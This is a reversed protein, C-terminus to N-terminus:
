QLVRQFKFDVAVVLKFGDLRDLSSPAGVQGCFRESKHLFLSQSPHSPHSPNCLADRKVKLSSLDCTLFVRAKGVM